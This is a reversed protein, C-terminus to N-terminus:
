RAAEATRRGPPREGHWARVSEPALGGRVLEEGPIGALGRLVRGWEGPDPLLDGAREGTAWGTRGTHTTGVLLIPAPSLLGRTTGDSRRGDPGITFAVPHRLFGNLFVRWTRVTGVARDVAPVLKTPEGHEARWD